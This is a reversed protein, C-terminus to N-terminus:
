IWGPPPQNSQVEIIPTDSRCAQGSVRWGKKPHLRVKLTRSKDPSASSWTSSSTFQKQIPSPLSYILTPMASNKWMGPDAEGRQKTTKVMTAVLFILTLLLLAFPFILWEWRIHVYTENSFASGYVLDRSATSRLTNTFATALREMHLTVNNPFIWPNFSLGRHVAGGNVYIKNRFVPEATANAVTSFSPFVDDFGMYINSHADRSMGYIQNDSESPQIIIDEDYFIDTGNLGPTNFPFSRWPYEGLTTNTFTNTVEEDYNAWYYSSELRKVCWYLVCEQAVPTQNQYVSEAGNSASTIVVNTLPNRIGKFNISGNLLRERSLNILPLLRMLLAEGAPATGVESEVEATSYGSLLVPLDETANLFYGCVSVEPIENDLRGGTLNAIWDAKTTTCAFTLLQSISMCQSCVGLTEYEPWTCNSTPCSVPIEPSTGNGLTNPQTGNGYFFSVSAPRVSEENQILEVGGRTEVSNESEYWTLIAISSPSDELIWREPLDVVQQFFTDNAILLVTLIAGL